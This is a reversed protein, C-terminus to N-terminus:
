FDILYFFSESVITNKHSQKLVNLFIGLTQLTAAAIEAEQYASGGEYTPDLVPACVKPEPPKDMVKTIPRLGAVMM